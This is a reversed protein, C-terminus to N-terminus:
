AAIRVPVSNIANVLIHGERVISGALEIHMDRDAMEEMLTQLQLEALRAGVCRHIGHGFAIHRRANERHALFLDPEAFVAEDRNGSIIWNVVKDGKRFKLGHFLHDEMVTRRIHVVPSHWRILENVAGPILSRDAKIKEWEEPWRHMVDILASMSNRTTDNGGVVLLAMNGIFEQQDMKSLADSHIMRSLLDPGPDAAVREQWLAFFKMAMEFLLTQRGQPDNKMMENSTVADSWVPLRHSDEEPFDFLTVLMATTLSVAVEKTWDFVEGRPLSDLKEATRQRIDASLRVMESPTFAPAV